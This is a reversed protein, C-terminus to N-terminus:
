RQEAMVRRAAALDGADVMVRTPILLFSGDAISANGDFAVADIGASDLLGVILHAEMRDFRGLEALAM